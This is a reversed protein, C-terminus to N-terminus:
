ASRDPDQTRPRLRARVGWRTVAWLAEVVIRRSIKSRGHERESFTIPVEGIRQGGLWARHVLEVQFGYGDSRIPREMLRALAWRRYVRFGSTSDRVEFGLCGRAYANGARSLWLRPRSWNTVSGGAVYRSGIVLDHNGAAELLRPLEEPRHSLDSDMEVLLDYGETMGVRFGDAYASALGSKAPRELLRVRPDVEAIRRVISATGDPSADDVVLADLRVPIELLGELVTAITDKEEYTPLVVLIRPEEPLPDPEPGRRPRKRPLALVGLVTLASAGVVWDGFRTYITRRTSLGVEGRLVAPV